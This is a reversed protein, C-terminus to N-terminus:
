VAKWDLVCFPLFYNTHCAKVCVAEFLSIDSFCMCMYEHLVHMYVESKASCYGFISLACVATNQMYSLIYIQVTIDSLVMGGAVSTAKYGLFLLIILPSKWIRFYM